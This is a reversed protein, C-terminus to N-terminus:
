DGGFFVDYGLKLLERVQTLATFHLMDNQLDYSCMFGYEKEDAQRIEFIYREKGDPSNEISQFRIRCM